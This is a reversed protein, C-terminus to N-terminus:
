EIWYEFDPKGIDSKYNVIIEDGINYHNDTKISVGFNKFYFGITDSNVIKVICKEQLTTPIKIEKEVIETDVVEINVNDYNETDVIENKRKAM